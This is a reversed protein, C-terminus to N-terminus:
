KEGFFDVVELMKVKVIDPVGTDYYSYGGSELRLTIDDDVELVPIKVGVCVKGRSENMFFSGGSDEAFRKIIPVGYGLRQFDFNRELSEGVRKNVFYVSDNTIKFVVYDRGNENVRCLAAVPVCDAPSHLLANQISNTLANIAHTQNAYIFTGDQESVFDVCRGCSALISNCRKIIGDVLNYIDIRESSEESFMMNIYAFVNKTVSSLGIIIKEFDVNQSLLEYQKAGHLEEQLSHSMKWLRTLNYELSNVIPMIKQYFETNEAMSMVASNDYLMCIFLEGDLPAIRACYFVGNIVLSTQAVENVPLEFDKRVFSLLSSDAPILSPDNSYVCKFSLDIIVVPNPFYGCFKKIDEKRSVEM